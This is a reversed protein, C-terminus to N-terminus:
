AENLSFKMRFRCKLPCDISAPPAPMPMAAHVSERVAGILVEPGDRVVLGNVSGDPMLLFFVNLEGIIGRRRATKPYRKHREIHAMIEALYRQREHEILGEDLMPAEAAVEPTSALQEQQPPEPQPENRVVEQKVPKAREEIKRPPEPQAESRVAEQQPATFTLRTVTTQPPTTLSQKVGSEGGAQVFWIGHLLLSVATAAIRIRLDFTV